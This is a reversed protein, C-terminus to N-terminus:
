GSFGAAAFRGRTGGAYARTREYGRPSRLCSLRLPCNTLMVRREGPLTAAAHSDPPPSLVPLARPM